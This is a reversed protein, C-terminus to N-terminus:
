FMLRYIKHPWLEVLLERNFLAIGQQMKHNRHFYVGGRHGRHSAVWM